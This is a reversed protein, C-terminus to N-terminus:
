AALAEPLSAIVDSAIVCDPGHAAAAIQGARVHAFVAACAAHAHSLGKALMAGTVGALVDGTGATALAPTVIPIIAARGHPAAVVTPAGKSVLVQGWAAARERALALRDHEIERITKGTLRGLEGPHPTLVSEPPLLAPWDPEMALLNLGDADVVLRPRRGAPRQRLWDFVARLLAAAGAGQGLGPGILLADYREAANLLAQSALPALVGPEGEPLPVFTAEALRHAVVPPLFAPAALTVLGAGARLAAATSLFAAGLYTRSGAVILAKGFTGKHSWRPRPPLLTAVQIDELVDVPEAAVREPLLGIEVTEVHGCLEAAPHFFHAPKPLGTAVTLDARFAQPDAAGTDSDTGSPVDIAVRLQGQARPAEAAIQLVDHLTGRVPPSTGMGLLGDLVVGAQGLLERLRAQAPDDQFLLVEVGAARAADLNADQERARTLYAAGLAGQQALFRVAVLADGGNNGPGVLALVRRGAVGGSRALTREAVQRGAREMMHSHTITGSAYTTEELARMAAATVVKM